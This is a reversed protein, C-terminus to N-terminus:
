YQCWYDDASVRGANQKFPHLYASYAVDVDISTIFVPMHFERESQKELSCVTFSIRSTYRWYFVEENPHHSSTSYLNM